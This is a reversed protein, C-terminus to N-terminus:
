PSPAATADATARFRRWLATFAWAAILIVVLGIVWIAAILVFGTQAILDLAWRTWYLLEPSTALWDANQQLFAITPDLLFWGAACCLSWFLVSVIVILTKM